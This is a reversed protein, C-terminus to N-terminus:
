PHFRLWNDMAKNYSTKFPGYVTRDLPQLKHSTHPPITLLVIGCERAKDIAALSIHAERNYLIILIKRDPFFCTTTGVHDLFDVFIEQNIWGSKSSKEASERPAGRLFHQKYRVRPFLLMPALVHGVASIIRVATVLEGLPPDLPPSKPM